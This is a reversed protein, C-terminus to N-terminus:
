RKSCGTHVGPLYLLTSAFGASASICLAFLFPELAESWPGAVGAFEMRGAAGVKQLTRHVLALMVLLGFLLSLFVSRDLFTIARDFALVTTDSAGPQGHAIPQRVLKRRLVVARVVAVLIATLWLTLFLFGFGALPSGPEPHDIFGYANTPAAVVFASGAAVM